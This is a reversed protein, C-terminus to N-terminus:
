YFIGVRLGEHTVRSQMRSCLSEGFGIRPLFDPTVPIVTELPTGWWQGLAPKVGCFVVFLNSFGVWPWLLLIIANYSPDLGGWGLIETAISPKPQSRTSFFALIKTTVQVPFPSREIIEVYLAMKSYAVREFFSNWVVRNWDNGCNQDLKTEHHGFQVLQFFFHRM